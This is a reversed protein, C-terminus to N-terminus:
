RESSHYVPQFKAWTDIESQSMPTRVRAEVMMNTATIWKAINITDEKTIEIKMPAKRKM